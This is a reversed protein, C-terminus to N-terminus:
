KKSMKRAAHAVPEADSEICSSSDSDTHIDKLVLTNVMRNTERAERLDEYVIGPRKKEFIYERGTEATEVATNAGTKVHFYGPYRKGKDPDIFERKKVYAYGYQECFQAVGYTANEYWVPDKAFRTVLAMHIRDGPQQIQAASAFFDGVLQRTQEKNQAPNLHSDNYYPFNFHIRKFRRDAFLGHINRADVVFSVKAGIARLATVNEEFNRFKTETAESIYTDKLSQESAYETVLIDSPDLTSNNDKQKKIQKQLYARSFSFNGDGLILRSKSRKLEPVDNDEEKSDSDHSEKKKPKNKKSMPLAKSTRKDLKDVEDNNDDDVDSEVESEKKARRPQQDQRDNSKRNLNMVDEKEGIDLDGFGYSEDDSADKRVKNKENTKKAPM